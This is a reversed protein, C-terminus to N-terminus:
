EYADHQHGNDNSPQPFAFMSIGDVTTSVQNMLLVDVLHFISITSRTADYGYDCMSPFAEFHCFEGAIIVYTHIVM